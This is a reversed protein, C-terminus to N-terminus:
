VHLAGATRASAPRVTVASEALRNHRLASRVGITGVSLVAATLILGMRGPTSLPVLGTAAVTAPLTVLGTVQLPLTVMPHAAGARLAPPIPTQPAAAFAAAGRSLRRLRRVTLAAVVLASVATPALTLARDDARPGTAELWGLGTAATAVLGTVTLAQLRRTRRRLARTTTAAPLGDAVIGTALWVAAVAALIALNIDVRDLMTANARRFM